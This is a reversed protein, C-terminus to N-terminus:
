RERRHDWEFALTPEAGAALLYITTGLFGGLPWAVFFSEVLYTVLTAAGIALAVSLFHFSGWMLPTESHDRDFHRTVGGFTLAGVLANILVAGTTWTSLAYGYPAASSWLTTRLRMRYRDLIM